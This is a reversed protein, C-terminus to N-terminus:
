SERKRESVFRYLVFRRLMSERHFIYLANPTMWRERRGAGAARAIDASVRAVTPDALLGDLVYRDQINFPALVGPALAVLRRLVAGLEAVEVDDRWRNQASLAHAAGLVSIRVLKIALSRRHTASLAAPLREDLLRTIPESRERLTLPALTTRERADTGIVYCPATRLFDVRNSFSWLRIGFEFDEGVRVGEAMRLGLARMTETRILGLPATRYFLRDRAADLKTRRLLRVLPNPMRLQGEIRIPAIVADAETTDAHHLWASMAGPELYDDSGMVACYESDTQALGHNFPGGPSRVGDSFPLVRWDGVVSSLQDELIKPAVEHAVVTVHVRDRVDVDQFVSSVARALERSPDHCAIIVDVAARSM